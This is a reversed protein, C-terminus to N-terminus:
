LKAKRPPRFNPRKRITEVYREINKYPTFDFKMARGYVVIISAVNIDAVTFRDGM